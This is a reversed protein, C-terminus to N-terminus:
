DNRLVALPTRNLVELSNWLGVIVTLAVVAVVLGGMATVPLAFASDFVFRTLAWTAAAALVVAMLASLIGLALYEALVVRFVQPRTAGLTRLLVGEKIRQFRTTAIAGILVVVGTALSFGAMFRIALAVRGLIQEFTLQVSALDVSTVNPFREALRRQLAGREAPSTTRALTVFTQPARDLAGSRFVAFFNPEFRAWDVERLSTVRSRVPVGQVNWVIEDGITVGLERAVEQELSVDVPAAPDTVPGKWWKGEVLRESAVLTDRYTSRYERRAAWGSRRPTSDAEAEVTDQPVLRVPEGKVSSIRMPIIAVSPSPTLGATRIADEVGQRQDAQIDFFVVNPRMAPGDVRLDRLLNHQVLYLTSLLFAGFGLSLVVTVTQNAPRYLNALGQRWLYPWRHPFFRRVGRILGLSALWLLLLAVGIGAAFGAGQRMSRVQLITLAVVSTALGLLALWRLPDRRAPTPEFDRRLTVLPSIRRIGLLPILAFIIAVWLGLGMGLIVARPAVRVSVDIPLLDQLVAPLVQQLAVGLAAGIASGLAGMAVAQLLYVTFVERATAGLCRLVAITELKQRIFVHVASAVGLGGLLLAILAVLGLYNGLRTLADRLDDRNDEVSQIRVREPRLAPRYREAIAGAESAVPLRLFAEYEVRSGFQILGTSELDRAAIYIRPSFAQAAAVNGPASTVAAAIVLRAEGLALTDGVTAGLATLLTPDVLVKGGRQLAPWAGAPDTRIQGYFPYGPEVAAVQVLRVGTTRPVFAMASFSVVRAVQGAPAAQEPRAAILTDILATTRDNFPQRSSLSLDAGLLAQAQATVSDRLNSAFSNVAVLAAVGAAVAGTLLWLRRRAGRSERWAMRWIFRSTM